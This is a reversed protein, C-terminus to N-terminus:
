PRPIGVTDPSVKAFGADQYIWAVPQYFEFAANQAAAGSSPAFVLGREDAFKKIDASTVIKENWVRTVATIVEQPVGKPIFIGFSKLGINFNPIFKKISPVNGFGELNIDNNAIAALPRIKGGRIMDLQEMALQTTVIVEGSVVATVAPNGGEYTVLKYDIGTYKKILEIYTTGASVQGATSVSIQGPKAKFDALLQDFTRYSSDASVGVVGINGATLFVEWDNKFSTDLLGNVKYLALDDAAGATWTYGDKPADMCQKTGTAGSAGPVNDVIVRVGLAKEMETATIRTLLDTAGGAGWPVIIHIPKNPKWGYDGGKEGGGGAFLTGTVTMLIVTLILFLKTFKRM